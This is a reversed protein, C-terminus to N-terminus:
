LSSGADQIEELVYSWRAQVQSSSTGEIGNVDVVVEFHSLSRLAALIEEADAFAGEKQRDLAASAIIPSSADLKHVVTTPSCLMLIGGDDLHPHALKLSRYYPGM